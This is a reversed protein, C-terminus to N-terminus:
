EKVPILEEHKQVSWSNSICLEKLKKWCYSNRKSEKGRIDEFAISNKWGVNKKQSIMSWNNLGGITPLHFEATLKKNLNRLKWLGGKSIGARMWVPTLHNASLSEQVAPKCSLSETRKKHNQIRNIGTNISILLENHQHISNCM